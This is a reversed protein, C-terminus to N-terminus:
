RGFHIASTTQKEGGFKWLKASCIKRKTDSLCTQLTIREENGKLIYESFIRVGTKEEIGLENVISIKDIVYTYAVGKDDTVTIKDDLRAEVFPDFAGMHHGIFYTNQNDTGSFHNARGWTSAVTDPENDIIEQGNGNNAEKFPIAKDSYYITDRRLIENKIGGNKTVIQQQLSNLNKNEEGNQLAVLAQGEAFTIQNEGEFTILYEIWFGIALLFIGLLLFRANLLTLFTFDKKRIHRSKKKLRFSM